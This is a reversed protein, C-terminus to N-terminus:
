TIRIEYHATSENDLYLNKLLRNQLFVQLRRLLLEFIVNTGFNTVFIIFFHFNLICM